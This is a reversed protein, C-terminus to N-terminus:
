LLAEILMKKVKQEIGPRSSERHGAVNLVKIKHRRLWSRITSAGRRDVFLFTLLPKRSELALKITLRSGPGADGFSEIFVITGDAGEINRWTREAYDNHATETLEYRDPIRGDEAGRGKPCWGGHQIGLTIAAELGGRDAGTQGGSIIKRLIM